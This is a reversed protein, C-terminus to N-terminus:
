GDFWGGSRCMRLVIIGVGAGNDGDVRELAFGGMSWGISRNIPRDVWGDTEEDV